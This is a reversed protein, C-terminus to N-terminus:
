RRSHGGREGPQSPSSLRSIEPSKPTYQSQKRRLTLTGREGAKRKGSVRVLPRTPTTEQAGGLPLPHPATSQIRAFPGARGDIPQKFLFAAEELFHYNKFKKQNKKFFIIQKQIEFKKKFGSYMIIKKM